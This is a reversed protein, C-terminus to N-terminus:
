MGKANRTPMLSIELRVGADDGDIGVATDLHPRRYFIREPHAALHGFRQTQGLIADAHVHHVDATLKTAFAVTDIQGDSIKERPFGTSRHLDDHIVSLFQRRAIGRVRRHDRYPAANFRVAPDHRAREARDVGTAGVAREFGIR